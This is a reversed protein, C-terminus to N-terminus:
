NNELICYVHKDAAKIGYTWNNKNQNITRLYSFVNYSTVEQKTKYAM